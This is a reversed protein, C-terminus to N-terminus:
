LHNNKFVCILPDSKKTMIFFDSGSKFNYGGDLNVGKNKKTDLIHRFTCNERLSITVGIM